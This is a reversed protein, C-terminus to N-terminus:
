HALGDHDEDFTTPIRNALKDLPSNAVRAAQIGNDKLMQRAVNLAAANLKRGVIEGDVVIPEPEIAHCLTEALKAHLLQLAEESAAKSDSM